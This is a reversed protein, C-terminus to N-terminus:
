ESKREQMRKVREDNLQKRAFQQAKKIAETGDTSPKWEEGLTEANPDLIEPVLYEEFSDDIHTITKKHFAPQLILGAKVDVHLNNLMGKIQDSFKNLKRNLISEMIPSQLEDMLLQNENAIFWRFVAEACHSPNEYGAKKSADVFKDVVHADIYFNKRTKTAM